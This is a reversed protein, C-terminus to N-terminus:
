KLKLLNLKAQAKAREAKLKDIATQPLLGSFAAVLATSSKLPKNKQQKSESIRDIFGKEVADEATLWTEADMIAFLDEESMGTKLRYATAIAKNCSILVQSEHALDRYDGEARSKVNHLMLMGTPVIESEAACVLYSAASAALGVVKILVKGSYTSIADYMESAAFISGGVSNVRVTVDEGNAENLLDIVMGPTTATLGFRDYIWKDENAVIEGEINIIRPM